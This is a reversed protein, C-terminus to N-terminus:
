MCLVHKTFYVTKQLIYGQQQLTHVEKRAQQQEVHRILSM